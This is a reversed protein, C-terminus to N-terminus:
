KGKAPPPPLDAETPIKFAIEQGRATVFGTVFGGDSGDKPPAFKV